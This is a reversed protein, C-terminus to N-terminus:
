IGKKCFTKRNKPKILNFEIYWQCIAFVLFASYLHDENAVCPYTVRNSGQIAIVSNLQEDLKFDIPLMMLENYLLERLRMFSWESVYEEKYALQGNKFIIKESDNREFDVPIKENFSCWCFAVGPHLPELGRFIARGLGDTTDLGIVDARLQKIIYSFLNVQDKDTLNYATINHLYRYKDNVKSLIIVETPATEGIDAAVFIMESNKPRDLFLINKLNEINTKNIECHKLKKDQVYNERVREMDLASVGEEVVEGKVFVRYGISNEGAHKKIMKIKEKEGWKPNVYQPLNIVKPKETLDYYVKGAPSYKTFNTMGAVRMVCGDESVSDQRKNYVIESEFSAEEIYLRRFHKQFFANGPQNSHLNMNVSVLHYGNNLFINYNPSRTIKPELMEYFKHNELARVIVDLIGRIHIADLSTFGANEGDLLVMSILIDIIEVFLSKGFKRGGFVYVSGSAERLKFNEKDTHRPNEDDVLYEFSLLTIQGLRIHSQKESYFMGLNDVDGFLCESLCLPDYFCEMFELEEESLITIM